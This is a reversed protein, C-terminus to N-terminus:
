AMMLNITYEIRPLRDVQILLSLGSSKKIRKKNYKIYNIEYQYETIELTVFHSGM